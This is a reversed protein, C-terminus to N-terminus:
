SDWDNFHVRDPLEIFFYLFYCIVVFYEFAFLTCPLDDSHTIGGALLKDFNQLLLLSLAKDVDPISCTIGHYNKM